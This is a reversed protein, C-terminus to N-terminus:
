LLLLRIIAMQDTRFRGTIPYHQQPLPALLQELLLQLPLERVYQRIVQFPVRM